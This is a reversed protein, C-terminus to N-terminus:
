GVECLGLSIQSEDRMRRQKEIHIKKVLKVVIERFFDNRPHKLCIVGDYDPSDDRLIMYLWVQPQHPEEEELAQM